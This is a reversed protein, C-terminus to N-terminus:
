ENPAASKAWAEVAAREDAALKEPGKPMRGKKIQQWIDDATTGRLEFEGLDNFLQADGRSAAGTHCEACRGKLVAAARGLIATTNQGLPAAPPSPPQPAPPAEEAALGPVPPPLDRLPARQAATAPAKQPAGRVLMQRLAALERLIQDREKQVALTARQEAEKHKREAASLAAPSLTVPPPSTTPQLNVLTASPVVVPVLVTEAVTIVKEYQYTSWNYRWGVYNGTFPEARAPRPLSLAALAALTLLVATRKM